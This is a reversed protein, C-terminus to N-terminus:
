RYFRLPNVPVEDIRIEFHLHPGTTRGTTGSYGIVDGRSVKQGPNVAIKSLHAYLTSYGSGHDVIVRLGYAGSSGAARVYGSDAAYVPTGPSVGIDIGSHFSGWRPGFSSTVKGGNTPWIFKGSATIDVAKSGVAVVANQPEEVVKEEVVDVAVIRGNERVVETTVQRIGNKGAQRTVRQWPYLSKDQVTTVKYPISEQTVRIEKSRFTIVPEPVTLSIEQGVQLLNPRIGPNAAMIDEETMNHQRAIAWLTDGKQVKYVQSVLPAHRLQALAEEQSQLVQSPDVLATRIEVKEIPEVSVVQVNERDAGIWRIYDQKLEELLAEAEERSAVTVKKQGDVWIEAAKVRFILRPGLAAALEDPTMLPLPLLYHVKTARPKELLVLNDAQVHRARAEKRIAEDLTQPEDVYGVFIDGVTIRYATHHLYVWLLLSLVSTLFAILM